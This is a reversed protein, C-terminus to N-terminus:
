VRPRLRFMAIDHPLVHATHSGSVTGLAARAWLDQVAAKVGDALGLDAWSATLNAAREGKNFLGVAIDGGALPAMWVEHRGPPVGIAPKPAPSAPTPPHRSFPAGSSLMDLASAAFSSTIRAAAAFVSWDGDSSSAVRRGAVGLSDQSIAIIDPNTLM